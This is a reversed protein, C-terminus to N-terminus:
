RFLNKILNFAFLLVAACFCVISLMNFLGLGSIGNVMLFAAGAILLSFVTKGIKSAENNTKKKKM